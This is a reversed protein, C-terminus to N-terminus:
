VIETSPSGGDAIFGHITEPAGGDITIAFNETDFDGGDILTPVIFTPLTTTEVCLIYTQRAAVIESPLSYGDEIPPFPRFEAGYSSCDGPVAPDGKSGSPGFRATNAFSATEIELDTFLALSATEAFSSTFPIGFPYFVPM